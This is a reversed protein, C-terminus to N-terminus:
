PTVEATNTRYGAARSGSWDFSYNEKLWDQRSVAIEM